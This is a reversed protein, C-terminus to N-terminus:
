QSLRSSITRLQDLSVVNVGVRGAASIFTSRPWHSRASSREMAHSFCPQAPRPVSALLPGRISGFHCSDKLPRVVAVQNWPNAPKRASQRSYASTKSDSIFASRACARQGLDSGHLDAYDTTESPGTM